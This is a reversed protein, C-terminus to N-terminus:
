TVPPSVRISRSSPRWAGLVIALTHLLAAIVAPAQDATIFATPRLIGDAFSGAHMAKVATWASILLIVQQPLVCLLGWLRMEHLFFVYVLAMTSIALLVLPLGDPAIFSTLGALSTAQAAVPDIWLCVAWVYHLVAAYLVILPYRKAPIISPDAVVALAIIAITMVWLAVGLVAMIVLGSM